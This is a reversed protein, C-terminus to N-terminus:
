GGLKELRQRLLPARHANGHLEVYQEGFVALLADDLRRVAGPPYRYDMRENIALAATPRLVEGLEDLSTIGLELLLGSIWTYHDTRSWGADAYQGALFAALERPDLRPDDDAVEGAAAVPAPEARLRERITSFERDALELLGAALTFRRDFEPAHEEPVSGKYRIDHEFEAWAHQLVTRVQVQAVRGRLGAYAAQSERAADLAILLHRSAYGWRGERATERGMDRDLHVVVQDALLGAVTEVDDQVYTIVRVGLQDTIDTLPNPYMPQGERMRGAKEAFSVVSKTRGTVSLYNIGAEDLISTVLAVAQEGAASLEAHQAAYTQIASRIAASEDPLSPTVIYGEALDGYVTTRDPHLDAFRGVYACVVADVQDEVVRLQSKRTATEVALRLSAWAGEAGEAGEAGDAGDPGDTRVVTEVHDMLRLLESRLLDVDRGRKDKYKLTRELGFLVVTAPHPYVEIARRARGSRPDMDLGLRKCVRAGRPGDRFEPKSLNSPHCGAEFRRFDRTLAKEAPRSGTENRVILPADIAVLCPGEVYPALQEAIEDDTRVASVHVLAGDEDLVALGTPQREGWALDIGIHHM